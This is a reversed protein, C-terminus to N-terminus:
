DSMYGLTAQPRRVTSPLTSLRAFPFRETSPTASCSPWALPRTAWVYDTKIPRTGPLHESARKDGHGSLSRPVERSDAWKGSDVATAACGSKLTAIDGLLLAAHRGRPRLDVELPPRADSAACRPRACAGDAASGHGHRPMARTFPGNGLRTINSCRSRADLTVRSAAKRLLQDPSSKELHATGHGM